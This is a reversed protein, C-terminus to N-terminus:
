GQLFILHFGVGFVAIDVIAHSIYGPWISRYRVYCASWLIGGTFVGAAAPVVGEWGLYVRLAIVHHLTFALASLFVARLSGALNEFERVM